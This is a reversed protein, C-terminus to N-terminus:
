SAAVYDANLRAAIAQLTALEAEDIADAAVLIAWSAYAELDEARTELKDVERNHKWEAIRDDTDAKKEEVHAKMRARAADADHRLSGLGAKAEDIRADIAEKTSERDDAIKAQLGSLRNEIGTLKARLNECFQDVRESM